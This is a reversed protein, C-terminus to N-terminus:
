GRALFLGAVVAVLGGLLFLGGFCCIAGEDCPEPRTLTVVLGVASVLMDVIALVLAIRELPTM